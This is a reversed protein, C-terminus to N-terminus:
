SGVASEGALMQRMERLSLTEVRVVCAGGCAVCSRSGKKM